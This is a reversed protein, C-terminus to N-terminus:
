KEDYDLHSELKLRLDETKMLGCEVLRDVLDLWRGPEAEGGIARSLIGAAQEIRDDGSDALRLAQWFALEELEPAVKRAETWMTLAVEVRGEDLARDGSDSVLQGRRLRALRRLEELPADSEDVRLDFRHEWSRVSPDNAVTVLAASQMGRIDGAEHEAAELAALMREPLAGNDNEFADAMADVVTEKLMMNAQVSYGSGTRHDAFQICGAGTYAAAVGARDVIAFQRRGSDMDSSELAAVAHAPSVGQRLLDLGLPGLSVNVVSQTVVAGIGPELWPVISGVCMQHTQVAAGIEDADAAVISYTSFLDSRIM